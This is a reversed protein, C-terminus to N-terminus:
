KLPSSVYNNDSSEKYSTEIKNVLKVIVSWCEIQCIVALKKYTQRFVTGKEINYM